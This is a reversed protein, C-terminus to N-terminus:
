WYTMSLSSFNSGPPNTQLPLVLLSQKVSNKDCSTVVIQPIHRFNPILNFFWCSFLHEFLFFLSFITFIKIPSFRVIRVNQECTNQHFNIGEWLLHGNPVNHWVPFHNSKSPHIPQNFWKGVLFIGCFREFFFGLFDWFFGLGKKGRPHDPSCKRNNLDHFPPFVLFQFIPFLKTFTLYINTYNWQKSTILPWVFWIRYGPGCKNNKWFQSRSM